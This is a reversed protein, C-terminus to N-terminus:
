AEQNTPLLFTSSPTTIWCLLRFGSPIFNHVRFGDGVYHPYPPSVVIEIKKTKM